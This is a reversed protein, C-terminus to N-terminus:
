QETGVTCAGNRREHTWDMHLAANTTSRSGAQPLWSIRNASPGVSDSMRLLAGAITGPPEGGGLMGTIDAGTAAGGM